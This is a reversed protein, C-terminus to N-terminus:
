QSLHDIHRADTTEVHGSDEKREATASIFIHATNSYASCLNGAFKPKM